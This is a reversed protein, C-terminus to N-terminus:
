FHLIYSVVRLKIHTFKDIFRLDMNFIFNPSFYHTGLLFHNNEFGRNNAEQLLIIRKLGQTYTRIETIEEMDIGEYPTGIYEWVIDNLHPVNELNQSLLEDITRIDEFFVKHIPKEILMEFLSTLSPLCFKKIFAHICFCLGLNSLTLLLELPKSSATGKAETSINNIAVKTKNHIFYLITIDNLVIPLHWRCIHHITCLLETNMQYGKNKLFIRFRRFKRFAVYIFLCVLGLSVAFKRSFLADPLLLLQNLISRFLTRGSVYSNSKLGPGVSPEHSSANGM